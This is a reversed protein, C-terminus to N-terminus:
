QDNELNEKINKYFLCLYMDTYIPSVHFHYKHVWESPTARLLVKLSKLGHEIKMMQCYTSLQSDSLHRKTFTANFPEDIHLLIGFMVSILREFFKHVCTATWRPIIESEDFNVNDINIDIDSDDEDKFESSYTNFHKKSYLIIGQLHNEIEIVGWDIIKDIYINLMCVKANQLVHIETFQILKIGDSILNYASTISKGMVYKTKSNTVIVLEGRLLGGVTHGAGQISSSYLVYNRDNKM